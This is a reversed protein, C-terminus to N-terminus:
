ENLEGLENLFDLDLEPDPIDSTDMKIRDKPDIELEKEVVKETPKEYSKTEYKVIPKQPEVYKSIIIDSFKDLAEEWQKATILRSKKLDKPSIKKILDPWCAMVVKNRISISRVEEKSYGNDLMTQILNLFQGYRDPIPIVVYTTGRESQRTEGCNAKWVAIIADINPRETSLKIEM